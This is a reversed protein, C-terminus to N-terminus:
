VHFREKPITFSFNSGQGVVSEVEVVGGQHEVIKKVLSLGLGTGTGENNAKLRQFIKFIRDFNRAEIGVGTDAVSFRWQRGQDRCSIRVTGTPKGMHNIANGILNQFVQTLQTRDYDVTPLDGEVRVEVGPPPSLMDIVERVIQTTNLREQVPPIRGIRSYTLIGELLAAMRRTRVRLLRLNERGEGDLNGASDEAIWEALSSIGRLPAKLDHSVIYAFDRLDENARRLGHLLEERVKEARKRETIDETLGVIGVARGTDDLVPMKIIQRVEETGDQMAFAIEPILLPQGTRLLERDEDLFHSQEGPSFFPLEAATRGLFAEPEVGYHEACARNVMLYRGELDKVFLRMPITDFVTQLLRQSARLEDEARKRETIDENIALQGVIWGQDDRLPLRLGRLWREEGRHNRRRYEAMEIREGLEVVRRDWELNEAIEEATRNPYDATRIGVLDEPRRGEFAGQARNVLVMRGARDKTFLYMPITDFVTQMLLQGARLEDEARKRGTIDESVAVIGRIAGTEDKLPAYIMHLWQTGGQATRLQIEPIEVTEGRALVERDAARFREMEAASRYPLDEVTRGVLDAPHLGLGRAMARNVARYRGRTDKVAIIQPLTDFVTQLLQQGARLEDEARKRATINEAIGVIGIVAGSEDTLPAKIMREWQDGVGALSVQMEPLELIAGRDLVEQDAALIRAVEDPTRYPLEAVTRGVFAEPALDHREAMARNVIQYRGQADKVYISQPLTDFVTQLLRQSARLDDVARKRGSIDEDIGVLGIVRGNEDKLPTRLMRVWLERDPTRLVQMEPIELPEGASIVQRDGARVQAAQAADFLPLNDSTRGVFAEPALHHRQAMARNVIQYRGRTDKVYISQPLTDFVTRLLRRGALLEENARRLDELLQERQSEARKRETIDFFALQVAPAGRWNIVRATAEAWVVAGDRRVLRFELQTSVAEGRLRAQARAKYTEIDEPLFFPDITKQGALAGEDPLGVLRAFARNAFLLEFDRHILIGQISGEILNRFREESERLAAEGQRRETLDILTCLSAPQGQWMVLRVQNELWMTSGDRRQARFEYRAPVPGGRMRAGHLALLRQREEPANLSAISDLALVREASDYGFMEVFAANVFLPKNQRHVLIGQLAGEILSRYRAESERLAEEAARRETIDILTGQVAPLGDWQIVRDSSELWIPAGDRRRGMLEFREPAQRGLMRAQHHGRLSPHASPDFLELLSPRALLEEATEFGFMTALARNVFQLKFNRHILIGQISGEILNRYREESEKLANATHLRESIDESVSVTGTALGSEDLVPLKYVRHFFQVGQNVVPMQEIVQPKGSKVVEEDSAAIRAVFEPMYVSVERMLRGLFDWQPRNWFQTQAKNVLLFRGESDKVVVLYPITDLVTRLLRQNTRLEEEQQKRATVDVWTAMVAQLGHWDVARASVDVWLPSGDKRRAEFEYRQPVAEGRLRAANYRRARAVEGPAYFREMGGAALVDEPGACGLMQAMAANVFLPKQNRHVVIGQISGEVLNRFREEGARLEEQQREELSVDRVALQRVKRGRYTRTRANIEIPFVTGDKRLGLTRVRAPKGSQIRERAADRAQPPMHDLVSAGVVEDLRYGFMEACSENADLVIGDEHLVVGEMAADLLDRYRQASDQLERERAELAVIRARHLHERAALDRVQRRLEGVADSKRPDRPTPTKM